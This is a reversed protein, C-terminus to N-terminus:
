RLRRSLPIPAAARVESGRDSRAKDGVLGQVRRAALVPRPGRLLGCQRLTCPLSSVGAPRILARTRFDNGSRHPPPPTCPDTRSPAPPREPPGLGLPKSRAPRACRRLHADINTDRLRGPRSAADVAPLWQVLLDAIVCTCATGLICISSAEAFRRLLSRTRRCTGICSGCENRSWPDLNYTRIM